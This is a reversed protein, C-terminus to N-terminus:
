SLNQLLSPTTVSNLTCTWPIHASYIALNHEMALQLKEFIAHDIMQVGSWFMGHHVILLDCGGQVAMRITPLCADVTAGIKTVQESRNTLQLGNHAASYDPIEGVKLTENALSVLDRLPASM